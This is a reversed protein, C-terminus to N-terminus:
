AYYGLGALWHTLGVFAASDVIPVHLIQPVVNVGAGIWTAPHVRGLTRRDYVLLAVILADLLLYKPLYTLHTEFGIGFAGLFIRNLGGIAFLLTALIIYRKHADPDRIHKMALWFLATFGVLAVLSIYTVGYVTPDSAAIAKGAFLITVLTGLVVVASAIAIGLLGLSRHLGVQRRNILLSQAVLLIMWAFYCVGHVHVVPALHGLTGAAMPQLYSLGFGAFVVGALAVTMWLFFANRAPQTAAADLTVEM